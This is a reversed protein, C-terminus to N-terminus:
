ASNRKKFKIWGLTLFSVSFFVFISLATQEWWPGNESGPDPVFAAWTMDDWICSAISHQGTLELICGTYWTLSLDLSLPAAPSHAWSCPKASRSTYSSPLGVISLTQLIGDCPFTSASVPICIRSLFSWSHPPLLWPKTVHSQKSSKTYYPAYLCVWMSHCVLSSLVNCKIRGEGAMVKEEDEEKM